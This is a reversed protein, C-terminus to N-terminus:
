KSHDDEPTTNKGSTKIPTEEGSKCTQHPVQITPRTLLHDAAPPMVGWYCPQAWNPPLTMRSCLVAVWSASYTLNGELLGLQMCRIESTARRQQPSGTLIAETKRKISMVRIAGHSTNAPNRCQSSASQSHKPLISRPTCVSSGKGVCQLHSLMALRLYKPQFLLCTHLSPGDTHFM